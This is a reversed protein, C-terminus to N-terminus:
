PTNNMTAIRGPTIPHNKSRSNCGYKKHICTSRRYPPTFVTINGLRCYRYLVGGTSAHDGHITVQHPPEMPSGSM